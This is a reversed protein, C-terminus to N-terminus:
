EACASIHSANACLLGARVEVQTNTKDSFVRPCISLVTFAHQHVSSFKLLVHYIHMVLRCVQSTHHM